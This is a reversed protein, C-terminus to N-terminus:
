PPLVEIWVPPSAQGGATETAVHFPRRGPTAIAAATIFFERENETEPILLGNLGVNDVFVGFPLNRGANTQGLEIRGTFDERRTARVTATVTQGPRIRIEFPEDPRGGDAGRDAAPVIELTVQPREGLTIDGLTGVEEVVERGGISAVARIKVAADAAADPDVADAAAALVGFARRQGAEIEIPGLLTFGPPLDAAEIRV